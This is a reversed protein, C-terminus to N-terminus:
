VEIGEKKLYDGINFHHDRLFPIDQDWDFTLWPENAKALTVKKSQTFIWIVSEVGFEFLKKSRVFNM